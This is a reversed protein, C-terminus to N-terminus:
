VGWGTLANKYAAVKAPNTPESLADALEASPVAITKHRGPVVGWPDASGEERAVAYIDHMVAGSGDARAEPASQLKYEFEYDAM